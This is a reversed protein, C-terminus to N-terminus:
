GVVDLALRLTDESWGFTRASGLLDQRKSMREIVPKLPLSPDLEMAKEYYRTSDKLQWLESLIEGARVWSTAYEPLVETARLADQAAKLLAYQYLAHRYQTQRFNQEAQATDSLVRRYVANALGTNCTSETFLTQLIEMNPVTTMLENVAKQLRAKHSAARKLYASARMLLLIGEQSQVGTALAQDYAEIALGVKGVELHANAKYKWKLCERMKNSVGKVAMHKTLLRYVKDVSDVNAVDFSARRSSLSVCRVTPGKLKNKTMIAPKVAVSSPALALFADITASGGKDTSQKSQDVYVQWLQPTPTLM